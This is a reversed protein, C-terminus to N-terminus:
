EFLQCICKNLLTPKELDYKFTNRVEYWKSIKNKWHQTGMRKTINRVDLVRYKSRM